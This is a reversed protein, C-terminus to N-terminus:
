KRTANGGMLGMVIKRLISLQFFPRTQGNRVSFVDSANVIDAEYYDVTGDSNQDVGIKKDSVTV